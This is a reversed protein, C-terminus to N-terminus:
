NVEDKIKEVVGRLLERKSVINVARVTNTLESIGVQFNVKITNYYM